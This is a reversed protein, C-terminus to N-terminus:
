EHTYQVITGHLVITTGGVLLLSPLLLLLLLAGGKAPGHHMNEQRETKKTCLGETHARCEGGPTHTDLTCM